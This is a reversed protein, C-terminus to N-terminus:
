RAKRPIYILSQLELFVVSSKKNGSIYRHKYESHGIERIEVNKRRGKIKVNRM